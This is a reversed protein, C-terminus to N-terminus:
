SITVEPRMQQMEKLYTQDHNSPFIKFSCKSPSIQIMPHSQFSFGRNPEAQIIKVLFTKAFFCLIFFPFQSRGKNKSNSFVGRFLLHKFKCLLKSKATIRCTASVFSPWRQWRTILFSRKEFNTRKKFLAHKSQKHFKQFSMPLSCCESLNKM